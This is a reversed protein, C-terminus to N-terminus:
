MSSWRTAKGDAARIEWGCSSHTASPRAGTSISSAITIVSNTCSDRHVDPVSSDAHEGPLQHPARRGRLMALCPRPIRSQVAEPAARSPVRGEGGGVAPVPDQRRASRDDAQGEAAGPRRNQHARRSRRLGGPHQVHHYRKASELLGPHGAPRGADSTSGMATEAPAPTQPGDGSRRRGAAVLSAAIALAVVSGFCRNRM